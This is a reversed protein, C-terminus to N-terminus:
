NAEEQCDLKKTIEDIYSQLRRSTRAQIQVQGLGQNLLATRKFTGEPYERDLKLQIYKEKKSYYNNSTKKSIAYSNRNLTEEDVNEKIVICRYRIEGYPASLYIYAIDGEHITFLNKWVVVDTTKFHEIINFYKTNCPIIWNEKM